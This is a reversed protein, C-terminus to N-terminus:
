VPPSPALPIACPAERAQIAVSELIVAVIDQPAGPVGPRTAFTSEASYGSWGRANEAEVKFTYSTGPILDLFVYQPYSSANLFHDVGDASLRYRTVPLGYSFPEGWTAHISTSVPLESLM